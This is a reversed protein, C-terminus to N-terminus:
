KFYILLILLYISIHFLFLDKDSMQTFWYTKSPSFTTLYILALILYIILYNLYNMKNGKKIKLIFLIFLLPLYHLMIDSINIIKKYKEPIMEEYRKLIYIGIINSTLVISIIAPNLMRKKLLILFFFLVWISLIGLIEKM